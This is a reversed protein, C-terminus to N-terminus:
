DALILELMGYGVQNSEPTSELISQRYLEFGSNAEPGYGTQHGGSAVTIDTEWSEVVIQIVRPVEDRESLSDESIAHVVFSFDGIQQTLLDDGHPVWRTASQEGSHDLFHYLAGNIVLPIWHFREFQWSNEKGRDQRRIREHLIWGERGVGGVRTTGRAARLGNGSEISAETWISQEPITMVIEPADPLTVRIERQAPEFTFESIDPLDWIEEPNSESELSHDEVRYAIPWDAQTGYWAKYETEYGTEGPRWNIDIPVVLREGGDDAIFIFYDSYYRTSSLEREDDILIGTKTCVLANFAALFLVIWFWASRRIQADKMNCDM